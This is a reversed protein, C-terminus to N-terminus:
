LNEYQHRFEIMVGFVKDEKSLIRMPFTNLDPNLAKLYSNEGDLLYQRFIITNSETIDVLVFCRDTPVKEPDLILLSGKPFYPEMSSDPLNVALAHASFSPSAYIYGTILDSNESKIHASIDTWGLVPIEKAKPRSLVPLEINAVNEPLPSEGKLQELSVEFFDAIPKLTKGHPRPSAGSVIRQLTQQPLETDRALQSTNLNRKFMLAKLINSIKPSAM